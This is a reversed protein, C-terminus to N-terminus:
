TGQTPTTAPKPKLNFSGLRIDLPNSTAKGDKANDDYRFGYPKGANGSSDSYTVILPDGNKVDGLLVSVARAATGQTMAKSEGTRSNQVTVTVGPELAKDFSVHTFGLDGARQGLQSLQGWDIRDPIGNGAAAATFAALKNFLAPDDVIAKANKWHPGYTPHNEYSAKGQTVANTLEPLSFNSGGFVNQMAGFLNRLADSEKSNLKESKVAVNSELLKPASTDVTSKGLVQEMKGPNPNGQLGTIGTNIAINAGQVRHTSGDSLPENIQQNAWGRPDLFVHTAESANGDKDVQRLLFREGAVIQKEKMQEENLSITATRGAVDYGTLPLEFIEAKHTADFEAKPNDSLSILEIRTGVEIQGLEIVLPDRRIPTVGPQPPPPPPVLGSGDAALEFAWARAVTPKPPTTVDGTKSQNVQKVDQINQANQGVYPRKVGDIAM